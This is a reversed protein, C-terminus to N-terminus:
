KVRSSLLAREIEKILGTRLDIVPTVGLLKRAKESSIPFDYIEREASPREEYIVDVQIGYEEHLLTKLLEAVEGITTTRPGAINLIQRALAKPDGHFIAAEYYRALDEVHLFNRQQRGDGHVIIRGERLASSIFANIVTRKPVPAWGYVNTQRFILAPVGHRSVYFRVVDEAMQKSLGYYSIPRTPHEEDIPKRVANGYLHAATSAFIFLRVPKGRLAELINLTGLVNVRLLDQPAGRMLAALHIVVNVDLKGLKERLGDADVLDQEIYIVNHKGELAREPKRVDMVFITGVRDDSVLKYVLYSGIYGAGGTLLLNVEKMESGCIGM